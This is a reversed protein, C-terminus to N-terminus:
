LLYQASEFNSRMQDAVFEGISISVAMCLQLIYIYIYIYIICVFISYWRRIITENNYTEHIFLTMYFVFDGSLFKNLLHFSNYVRGMRLVICHVVCSRFHSHPLNFFFKVNKWFIKIQIKTVISNHYLFFLSSYVFWCNNVKIVFLLSHISNWDPIPHNKKIMCFRIASFSILVSDYQNM